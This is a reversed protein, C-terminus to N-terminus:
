VGLARSCRAAHIRARDLKMKVEEPTIEYDMSEDRSEIERDM